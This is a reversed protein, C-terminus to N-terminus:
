CHGHKGGARLVGAHSSGGSGPPRQDLEGMGTRGPTSPLLSVSVASWAKDLLGREEWTLMVRLAVPPHLQNFSRRCSLSLLHVTECQPKLSQALFLNLYSASPPEHIILHALSSLAATILKCILFPFNGYGSPFNRWALLNFFFNSWCVM